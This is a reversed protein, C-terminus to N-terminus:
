QTRIRRGTSREMLFRHGHGLTDGPAPVTYLCPPSSGTSRPNVKSPPTGERRGISHFLRRQRTPPFFYVSASSVDPRPRGHLARAPGRRSGSPLNRWLAMELAGVLLEARLHNAMAWGVVRRTCARTWNRLTHEPVDLERSIQALPKESSHM